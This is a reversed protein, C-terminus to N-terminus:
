IAKKIGSQVEGMEAENYVNVVSEISRTVVARTGETESVALVAFEGGTAKSLIAEKQMIAQGTDTASLWPEDYRRAQMQGRLSAYMGENDGRERLEASLMDLFFTDVIGTGNTTYGRAAQELEETSMARLKATTKAQLALLKEPHRMEETQWAKQLRAKQEAITTLELETDEAFAAKLAQIGKQIADNIYAPAYNKDRFEQIVSRFTGIRALLTSLAKSQNAHNELLQLSAESFSTDVPGTIVQAM